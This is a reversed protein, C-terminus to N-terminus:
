SGEALMSFHCLALRAVLMQKCGYACSYGYSPGAMPIPQAKQM